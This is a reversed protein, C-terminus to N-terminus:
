SKKYSFLVNEAPIVFLTENDTVVGTLLIAEMM